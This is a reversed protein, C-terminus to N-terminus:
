VGRRSNRATSVMRRAHRRDDRVDDLRILIPLAIMGLILAGMPLLILLDTVNM